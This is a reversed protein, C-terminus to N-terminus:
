SIRLCAFCYRGQQYYKVLKEQEMPDVLEKYRCTGLDEAERILAQRQLGDGILILRAPREICHLLVAFAFLLIPYGKGPVLRGIASRTHARHNM